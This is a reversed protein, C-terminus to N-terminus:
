GRHHTLSETQQHIAYGPNERFVLELNNELPRVHTYAEGGYVDNPFHGGNRTNRASPRGRGAANRIKKKSKPPPFDKLLSKYTGLHRGSPSTSTREPWKKFGQMLEEFRLPLHTDKFQPYKRCHHKLLLKTHPSVQLTDLDATGLLLQEGFQTLSDTGLLDTLPPVTYPSGHAQAFHMQCQTHMVAEIEEPQYLTKWNGQNDPDPVLLHTLGGPTRPKLHNKIIAFCRCNQEAQLLHMILKGKKNNGATHADTALTQLFDKRKQTAQRHVERLQTRSKTLNKSISGETDIPTPLAAVIEACAQQFNRGTTQESLRLVWYRHHLYANHLDSSWPAQNLRRCQKDAKVIVATIFENIKELEQHNTDTFTQNAALAYIQDFLDHKLFGEVVM